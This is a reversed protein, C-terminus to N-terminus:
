HHPHDHGHGHGHPHDHGHGHPHSPAPAPAASPGPEAAATQARLQTLLAHAAAVAQDYVEKVPVGAKDAAARCHDFEPAAGVLERGVWKLKVDVVGFPTNVSRMERLAQARHTFHRARV